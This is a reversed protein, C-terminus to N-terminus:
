GSASPATSGTLADMVTALAARNAPTDTGATNGRSCTSCISGGPRFQLTGRRWDVMGQSTYADFISGQFTGAVYERQSATDTQINCCPLVFGRHDLIFETTPALCPSERDVGLGPVDGGRDYGSKWLNRAAIQVLVGDASGSAWYLEGPKEAMEGDLKLRRAAISVRRKVYDDEWRGHDRGYISVFITNIGADRVRAFTRPNLYDGNTNFGLNAKPLHERAYAICSVLNDLAAMPENYLHFYLKRAYDIQKLEAIVTEFMERSMLREAKLRSGSANPCFGCQRNCYSSVELVVTQVSQAFVQRKQEASAPARFLDASVAAEFPAVAIVAQDTGRLEARFSM